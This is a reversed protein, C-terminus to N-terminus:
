EREGMGDAYGDEYGDSRAQDREQELQARTVYQGSAVGQCAPCQQVPVSGPLLYANVPVLGDDCLAYGQPDAQHALVAPTPDQHTTV